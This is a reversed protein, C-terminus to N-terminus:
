KNSKQDKITYIINKIFEEFTEEKPNFEFDVGIGDGFNLNVSKEKKNYTVRCVEKNKRYIYNKGNNGTEVSWNNLGGFDPDFRAYISDLIEQVDDETWPRNSSNFKKANAIKDKLSM